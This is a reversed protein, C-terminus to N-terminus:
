NKDFNIIKNYIEELNKTKQASSSILFGDIYSIYDLINDKNIGGGFLIPIEDQTYNQIIKKIFLVIEILENKTIYASGNVAWVPEYAILINSIEEKSFNSLVRNLQYELVRMTKGRQKEEETEGIIYIPKINNALSNKIKQVIIKNDENFNKRREIHGILSYKVGMSKLQTANVEGTFAGGQYYSVDQSGLIYKKDRFFVLYPHSPCIVLKTDSKAFNRLDEEYTIIENLTMNSKLNCILYKM